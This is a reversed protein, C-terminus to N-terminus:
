KHQIKFEWVLNEQRAEPPLVINNKSLIENLREENILSPEEKIKVAQERLAASFGLDELAKNIAAIIEIAGICKDDLSVPLPSLEIILKEQPVVFKFLGGLIRRLVAINWEVKKKATVVVDFKSTIVGRWGSHHTAFDIILRRYLEEQEKIERAQGQLEKLRLDIQVLKEITRVITQAEKENIFFGEEREVKWFLGPIGSEVRRLRIRPM